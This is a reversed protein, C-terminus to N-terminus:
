RRFSPRHCAIRYGQAQKRLCQRYQIWVNNSPRIPQNYIPFNPITSHIGYKAQCNIRAGRAQLKLCQRYESSLNVAEARSGVFGFSLSSTILSLCLFKNFVKRM